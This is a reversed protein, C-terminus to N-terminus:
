CFDSDSLTLKAENLAYEHMSIFKAYYKTFIEAPNYAEDFKNKRSPFMKKLNEYNWVKSNEDLKLLIIGYRQLYPQLYNYDMSSTVYVLPKKIYYEKQLAEITLNVRSMAVMPLMAGEYAKEKGYYTADVHIVETIWTLLNTMAIEVPHPRGVYTIYNEALTEYNGEEDDPKEQLTVGNKQFLDYLMKYIIKFSNQFSPIKPYLFRIARVHIEQPDTTGEGYFPYKLNGIYKKPDNGILGDMALLQYIKNFDKIHRMLIGIVKNAESAKTYDGSLFKELAHTEDETTNFKWLNEVFDLCQRDIFIQNKLDQIQTWSINM